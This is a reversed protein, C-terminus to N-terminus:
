SSNKLIKKLNTMENVCMKNNFMFDYRFLSFGLLKKSRILNIEREIIDNNKTWENKGDGADKDISGCKYIALTPIINVNIENLKIWNDLVKDFPAYENEFGYYIQPMIIDLYGEEKLWTKVDAYHYKYNNNINGDPAISFIIDKDKKKIINYVRKILDNVHSMRFEKLDMTGNNNIYNQYEEKDIDYNIYFYDDFHIGDIAYNNIIESVENIILDKVIESAPNFYIGDKNIGISTTNLLKYAPNDKSLKSTDSSFSVRYPNLWAHVKINKSHAKKIFYELFDFGPYKGETGTLTYSYPLIRSNYISDSFPSVHLMITNFELEKINDIMKDIKSQNITKSNGYFNSFYELYSIYVIRYEMIEEKNINNNKKDAIAADTILFTMIIIPVILNKRMYDNYTNMFLIITM